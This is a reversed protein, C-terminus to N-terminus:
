TFYGKNKDFKLSVQNEEVSKRFIRLYLVKHFDKCHSDLLEKRAPPRAPPRASPLVSLRVSQCSSTLLRKECNQSCKEFSRIIDVSHTARNKSQDKFLILRHFNTTSLCQTNFGIWICQTSTLMTLIYLIIITRQRASLVIKRGAFKNARQRADDKTNVCQPQRKTVAFRELLFLYAQAYPVPCSNYQVNHKIQPLLVPRQNISLVAWDDKKSATSNTNYPLIKKSRTESLECTEPL